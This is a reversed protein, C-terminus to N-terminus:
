GSVPFLRPGGLPPQYGAEGAAVVMRYCEPGVFVIQDDRTDARHPDPRQILRGCAFCRERAKGPSPEASTRTM